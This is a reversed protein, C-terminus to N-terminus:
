RSLDNWVLLLTWIAISVTLLAMVKAYWVMTRNAREGILLQARALHHPKDFGGTTEAHSLQVDIEKVLDEDSATSIAASTYEM